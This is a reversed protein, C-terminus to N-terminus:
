RPIYLYPNLKEIKFVDIEKGDENYFDFQVTNFVENIGVLTFSSGMGSITINEIEYLKSPTITTVKSRDNESGYEPRSLKAFLKM